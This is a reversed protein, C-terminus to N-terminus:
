GSSDPLISPPLLPSAAILFCRARLIESQLAPVPTSPGFSRYPMEQRETEIHM